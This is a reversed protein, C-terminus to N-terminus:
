PGEDSPSQKDLRGGSQGGSAAEAIGASLEKNFMRLVLFALGWQFVCTGISFTGFPDLPSESWEEAVTQYFWWGVLILFQVPILGMLVYSFWAGMKDGGRNIWNQRFREFGVRAIAVVFLFGSLILGIGWAWDQNQLVDLSLASPLGLLCGFVLVIGIARPRELGLDMLTRTALEVMAILSTTAAFTLAVFFVASLYPGTEGIQAFLRPLWVMAMGTNGPGSYGLVRIPELDPALVPALAFVAPITALAAVISALNNGIGTVLADGVNNGDRSSAVSLTLLLGWGAGTSWASQTLGELWPAPTALKSWNVRFMYDLGAGSGERSLGAVILVCLLLFLMPLLIKNAIEIGRRIGRAVFVASFAFALFMSLVALQGEALSEFRKTAEELGIAGFDVRLSEIVYIGCWGCVVAYYAMIAITCFAVFGGLWTRNRGLMTGLSLIVGKRTKRGIAAEVILLPISWSFLFVLWPILLTGGGDFKAMIRPFRWINGAGIAMGLAALILAFRSSFLDRAQQQEMM